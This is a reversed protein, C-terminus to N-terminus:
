RRLAPERAACLACKVVIMEIKLCGVATMKRIIVGMNSHLMAARVISPSPNHVTNPYEQCIIMRQHTSRQTGQELAAGPHLDNCFGVVALFGQLQNTGM